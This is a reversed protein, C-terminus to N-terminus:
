RSYLLWCDVIASVDVHRGRVGSDIWSVWLRMLGCMWLVGSRVHRERSAIAEWGFGMEKRESFGGLTQSGGGAGDDEAM